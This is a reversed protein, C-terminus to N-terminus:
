AAKRLPKQRRHRLGLITGSSAQGEIGNFSVFVDGTAAASAAREVFECADALALHDEGSLLDISLLQRWFGVQRAAM